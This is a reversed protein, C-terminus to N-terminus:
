SREEIPILDEDDPALYEFAAGWGAMFAQWFEVYNPIGSRKAWNDFMNREVELESLIIQETM